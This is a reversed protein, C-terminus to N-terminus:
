QLLLYMFKCGRDYRPKIRSHLRVEAERPLSCFGIKRYHKILKEYPLAFLYLMKVGAIKSVDYVLPLVFETFIYKGIGKMEPNNEIFVSNVAFNALEIGPYTDFEKSLHKEGTEYDQEEIEEENISVLGAKISFYGVCEESGREWVLYTRMEMSQEDSLALKKLYQSM